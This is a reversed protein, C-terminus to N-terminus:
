SMVDNQARAPVACRMVGGSPEGGGIGPLMPSRPEPILRAPAM